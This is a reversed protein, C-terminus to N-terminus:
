FPSPASGTFTKITKKSKRQKKTMKLKLDIVVPKTLLIAAILAIKHSEVYINFM